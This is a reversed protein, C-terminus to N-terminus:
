DSIPLRDIQEKLIIYKASVWKGKGQWTSALRLWTSDSSRADFLYCEDQYVWDVVESEKSPGTRVNLAGASVCGEISSLQQAPTQSPSINEQGPSIELNIKEGLIDEIVSQTMSGVVVHFIFGDRDVFFTSPYARIGYQASVSGTSDILLPFTLEFQKAFDRITSVTDEDNVGLIILNESYKSFVNQIAPMEDKCPGCWSAWFNVMVVKGRLSSLKITTDSSSQLSFDPAINGVQLSTSSTDLQSLGCSISFFLILTGFQFFLSKKKKM